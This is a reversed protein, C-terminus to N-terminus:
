REHPRGEQLVSGRNRRHTMGDSRHHAYKPALKFRKLAPKGEQRAHRTYAQM